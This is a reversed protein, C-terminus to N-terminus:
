DGGGIVDAGWWFTVDGIEQATRFSESAKESDSLGNPIYICILTNDTKPSCGAELYAWDSVAVIPENAIKDTEAIVSQFKSSGVCDDRTLEGREEREMFVDITQKTYPNDEDIPVSGM